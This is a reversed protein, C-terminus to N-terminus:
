YVTIFLVVSLKLPILIYTSTFAGEATHAGHASSKNSTIVFREGVM